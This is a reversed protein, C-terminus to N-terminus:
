FVNKERHETFEDVTTDLKLYPSLRRHSKYKKIAYELVAGTLGVRHHAKIWGWVMEIYNLECHYKPYLFIFCGPNREVTEDLWPKQALFDPEKSLVGFMCCTETPDEKITHDRCSICLKKLEHQTYRGDPLKMCSKGRARLISLLGLQVGEETQMPQIIRTTVGDVVSNYWGNRQKQVSAGGDSKNLKSM